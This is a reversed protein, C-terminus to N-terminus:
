DEILGRVIKKSAGLNNQILVGSAKSSKEVQIRDNLLLECSKKFQSAEAIPFAGGLRILEIAEPFKKYNPGFIIPLKAIAPEMINHIGSSFGGGIYSLSGFWYLRYLVGVTGLIVVRSDPLKSINKDEVVFADYGANKFNNRLNRVIYKEPEHPAYLIKLDSYKRLLEYVINLTIRDDSDHMSGLILRKPRNKIKSEVHSNLGTKTEILSDFRPNGLVRCLSNDQFTIIKKINILDIEGTAYISSLSGYLVKYFKRFIFKLKYSENHIQASFLNTHINKWKALWLLNPWLDYTAFIIKKPKITNLVSHVTWLFDFPMYIKFDIAESVAYNYGSPSFFSVLITSEPISKKLNEIVPKVQRFEGLSAAHFWFIESNVNKDKFIKCILRKSRIKGLFGERAKKNTFSIVLYVFFFIPYFFLNYFIFWLAM